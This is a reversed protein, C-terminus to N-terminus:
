ISRMSSDMNLGAIILPSIGIVCKDIPNVGVVEVVPISFRWLSPNRNLLMLRDCTRSHEFWWPIFDWIYDLEKWHHLFEDSKAIIQRIKSYECKRIKHLYTLYEIFYLKVFNEVPIKIQHTDLSPDVAVISRSSYDIRKSMHQDRIYGKKGSLLDSIKMYLQNYNYQYCTTLNDYLKLQEDIIPLRCDEEMALSIKIMDVFQQYDGDFLRLHSKRFGLINIYIEDIDSKLIGNTTHFEENVITSRTNPPIVIIDHIFHELLGSANASAYFEQIATLAIFLTFIGSIALPLCTSSNYESVVIIYDKVPNYRLYCIVSTSLDSQIPNIIHAFEKKIVKNFKSRKSTKILPFLCPIKAFTKYRMTNSTCIVGCKKCTKNNHLTKSSYAGCACKYNRIPGFFVESLIGEQDVVTNKSDLFLKTSTIIPLTSLDINIM